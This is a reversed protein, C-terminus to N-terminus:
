TTRISDKISGRGGASINPLVLATPKLEVYHSTMNFFRDPTDLSLTNFGNNDKSDENVSLRQKSFKEPRISDSQNRL